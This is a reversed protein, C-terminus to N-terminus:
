RSAEPARPCHPRHMQSPGPMQSTRPRAKDRKMIYPYAPREHEDSRPLAHFRAHPARTRGPRRVHCSRAVSDHPAHAAARGSDDAGPRPCSPPPLEGTRCHGSKCSRQPVPRAPLSPYDHLHHLPRRPRRPLRVLDEEVQRDRSCTESRLPKTLPPGRLGPSPDRARM